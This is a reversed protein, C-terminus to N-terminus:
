GVEVAPSAPRFMWHTAGDGIYYLADAGENWAYWGPTTENALYQCDPVRGYEGAERQPFYLDVYVRNHKPATEIPQWGVAQDSLAATLYAEVSVRVDTRWREKVDDPENAWGIYAIGKRDGKDEYVRQAAAEIAIESVTMLAEGTPRPRNCSPMTAQCISGEREPIRRVIQLHVYGDTRSWPARDM